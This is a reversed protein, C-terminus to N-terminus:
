TLRTIEVTVALDSDAPGAVIGKIAPADTYDQGRGVIMHREGAAARHIAPLQGSSDAVTTRVGVPTSSLTVALDSGTHRVANTALESVVIMADEAVHTLDRTPSCTVWM